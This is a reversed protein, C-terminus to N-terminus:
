EGTIGGLGTSAAPPGQQREGVPATASDIQYRRLMETSDAYEHSVATFEPNAAQETNAMRSFASEAAQWRAILAEAARARAEWNESTGRGWRRRPKSRNPPHAVPINVTWESHSHPFRANPALRQPNESWAELKDSTRRIRFYWADGM